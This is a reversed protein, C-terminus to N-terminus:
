SLEKLIEKLEKEEEVLKNYLKALAEWEIVDMDADEPLTWEKEGKLAKLLESTPTQYKEEYYHLQRKVEKQKIKIRELEKEIISIVKMLRSKSVHISITM